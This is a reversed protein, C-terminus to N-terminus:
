SRRSAQPVMLCSSSIVSHDYFIFYGIKCLVGPQGDPLDEIRQSGDADFPLLVAGGQLFLVQVGQQVPQAPVVTLGVQRSEQVAALSLGGLLGGLSGGLLGSGLLGLGGLGAVAGGLLGGLCVSALVVAAIVVVALVLVLGVLLPVFLGDGETLQGPFGAGLSGCPFSHLDLPLAM